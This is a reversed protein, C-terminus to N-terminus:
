TRVWTVWAGSWGHKNGTRYDGYWLYGKSRVFLEATAGPDPGLDEIEPRRLQFGETNSRDRWRRRLHDQLRDHLNEEDYM